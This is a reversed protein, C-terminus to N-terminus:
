RLQTTAGRHGVERITQVRSLRSTLMRGSTRATELMSHQTSPEALRTGAILVTNSAITPITSAYNRSFGIYRYYPNFSNSVSPQIATGTGDPPSPNMYGYDAIGVLANGNSLDYGFTVGTGSPGSPETYGEDYMVLRPSYVWSMLTYGPAYSPGNYFYWQPVCSSVGNQCNTTSTNSPPEDVEALDGNSDYSYAIVTGNPWTLTSLLRQPQSNVTVDSFALTATRGDEEQVYIDSLNCSCTANGNTWAYTFQLYTNSNRGIIQFLRGTYALYQQLSPDSTTPEYFHYAIGSKQTWYYGYVGDWSLTGFQGAPPIWNGQGDPMYDYRTGNGDFVSLGTGYQNGTNQALHADFTNTWGAGYNSITEAGDTAFYDHQSLSNYTRTFTLSIGRHAIAMDSAQIMLNGGQAVNVAYRGVGPLPGGEFAWWPNMGTNPSAGANVSLARRVGQSTRTQAAPALVPPAITRGLVQVTAPTSQPLAIGHAQRYAASMARPDRLGSLPKTPRATYGPMPVVTGRAHHAASALRNSRPAQRGVLESLQKHVGNVPLPRPPVGTQAVLRTGSQPAATAPAHSISGAALLLALACAIAVRCLGFIKV